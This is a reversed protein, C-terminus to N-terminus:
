HVALKTVLDFREDGNFLDLTESAAVDTRSHPANYCIEAPASCTVAMSGDSSAQRVRRSFVDFNESLTVM